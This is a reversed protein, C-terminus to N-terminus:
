QRIPVACGRGTCFIRHEATECDIYPCCVAVPRSLTGTRSSGDAAAVGIVALPWKFCSPDQASSKQRIPDLLENHYWARVEKLCLRRHRGTGTFALPTLKLIGYLGVVLNLGCAINPVM